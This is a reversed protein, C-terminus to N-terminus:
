HCECHPGHCIHNIEDKVQDQIKLWASVRALKAEILKQRLDPTLFLPWEDKQKDHELKFNM